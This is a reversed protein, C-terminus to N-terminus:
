RVHKFKIFPSPSSLIRHTNRWCTAVQGEAWVTRHTVYRVSFLEYVLEQHCSFLTIFIEFVICFISVESCYYSTTYVRDFVDIESLQSPGKLTNEGIAFREFSTKEIATQGSDSVSLRRQSYLKCSIKNSCM